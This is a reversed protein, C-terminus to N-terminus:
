SRVTLINSYDTENAIFFMLNKCNECVWVQPMIGKKSWGRKNPELAFAKTGAHGLMLRTQVMSMSGCNNCKKM